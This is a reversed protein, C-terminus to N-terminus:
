VLEHLIYGLIMKECSILNTAFGHICQIVKMGSTKEYGRAWGEWESRVKVKESEIKEAELEAKKAKRDKGKNRKRSPM